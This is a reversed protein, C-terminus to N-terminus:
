SNRRHTESRSNGHTASRLQACALGPPKGGTRKGGLIHDHPRSEERYLVTRTLVSRRGAIGANAKKRRCRM